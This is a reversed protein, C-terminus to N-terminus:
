CRRPFKKLLEKVNMDNYIIADMQNIFFNINLSPKYWNYNYFNDVYIMKGVEYNIFEHKISRVTRETILNIIELVRAKNYKCKFTIASSKKANAPIQLKILYNSVNKNVIFTGKKPYDLNLGLTTHSIKIHKLKVYELKSNSFDTDILISRTLNVELMQTYRFDCCCLNSKIINVNNLRSNRFCCYSLKSNNLNTDQLHINRLNSGILNCSKLNSDYIISDYIISNVLNANFLNVYDLTAGYLYARHLYANSLNVHVLFAGYLKINPLFANSLDIDHLYAYKLSINERVAKELTIKYTNNKCTHSYLTENHRNKITITKM